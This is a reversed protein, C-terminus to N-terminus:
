QGPLPGVLWEVAEEPALRILDRWREPASFAAHVRQPDGAIEVPVDVLQGDPRSVAIHFGPADPSIYDASADGTNDIRVRLTLPEGPFVVHTAGEAPDASYVPVIADATVLLRLPSYQAYGSQATLCAAVCLACRVISGTNSIM